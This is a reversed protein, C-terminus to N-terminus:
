LKDVQSFLHRKSTATHPISLGNDVYQRISYVSIESLRSATGLSYVPETSTVMNNEIPQNMKQEKLIIFCNFVLKVILASESNSLAYNRYQISCFYRYYYM